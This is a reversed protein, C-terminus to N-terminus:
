KKIFFAIEEHANSNNIEIYSVFDNPELKSPYKIKIHANIMEITPLIMKYYYNICEDLTKDTNVVRFSKFVPDYFFTLDKYILESLAFLLHPFKKRIKSYVAIKPGKEEIERGNQHISYMENEIPKLIFINSYIKAITLM